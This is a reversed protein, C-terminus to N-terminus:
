STGLSRSWRWYRIDNRCRQSTM